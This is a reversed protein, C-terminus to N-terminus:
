QEQVPGLGVEMLLAAFRPDDRIFDYAPNIKMSFVSRSGSNASAAEQLAKIAGEGDGVFAFVQGLDDNTILARTIHDETIVGVEDREAYAIFMEGVEHAVVKDGGIVTTYTVFTEAARVARGSRLEHLFLNKRHQFYDPNTQSMSYALNLAEDFQGADVLIYALNTRMMKSEPDVAVARRATVIAEDFRGQFSYVHSLWHLVNVNDPAVALAERFIIEANDWDYFRLQYWAHSAKVEPITPDLRLAEQVAALARSEVVVPDISASYEPLLMYADALGSWALAFEPDLEIVSEFYEIAAELSSVTREELLVRGFFYADLAAISRTPVVNLREKDEETLAVRLQVAIENAIESQIAFVNSASLERDYTEAWLHEDRDARILRANIRVRDGSRQVGGALITAVGLEEAIEPISLNSERYRLVSTRSITRITKIHSLRTLLDDHIGATFPDNSTDGSMNEFPLVAVSSEVHTDPLPRSTISLVLAVLLIGIIVFDLKRGHGAVQSAGSDKRLGDPGLEYIWALVVAVPLGIMLATLILRQVTDPVSLIPAITAVVQIILWASVTYAVSVRFVNRRKLEEFLSM